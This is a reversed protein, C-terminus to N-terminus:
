KIKLGIGIGIQWNGNKTATKANYYLPIQVAFMKYLYTFGIGLNPTVFANKPTSNDKKYRLSPLAGFIFKSNNHVININPGMFNSFAGNDVYGLIVIGDYGSIKVKTEQGFLISQQFCILILLSGIVKVM